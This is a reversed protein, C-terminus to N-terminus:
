GQAEKTQKKEKKKEMKKELKQQRKSVEAAEEEDAAKKTKEEKPIALKEAKVRAMEEVKDQKKGIVTLRSAIKRIEARIKKVSADKAITKQDLGREKLVELRRSLAGAWYVKQADRAIKDKSAM